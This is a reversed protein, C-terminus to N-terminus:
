GTPNSFTERFLTRLPQRRSLPGAYAGRAADVRARYSLAGAPCVRSGGSVTGAGRAVVPVNRQHCMRLVRQLQEENEPLVALM